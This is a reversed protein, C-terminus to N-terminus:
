PQTPINLLEPDDLLYYRDMYVRRPGYAGKLKNMFTAVAGEVTRAPDAGPAAPVRLLYHRVEVPNVIVPMLDTFTRHGIISVRVSVAQMM